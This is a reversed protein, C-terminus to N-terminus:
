FGGNGLRESFQRTAPDWIAGWFSPGGDCIRVAERAPDAPGAVSAPWANVYIVKQGNRVLGVYQRHSAASPTGDPTLAPLDALARELEIVDTSSPIWRPLSGSPDPSTRSCTRLVSAAAADSVVIWGQGANPDRAQDQKAATCAALVFLLAASAIFSRRM